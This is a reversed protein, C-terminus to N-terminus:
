YSFLVIPFEFFVWPIYAYTTGHTQFLTLTHTDMWTHPHLLSPSPGRPTNVCSFQPINISNDLVDPASIKVDLVLSGVSSLHYHPCLTHRSLSHSLHCCLYSCRSSTCVVTNVPCLRLTFPLPSYHKTAMEESLQAITWSPFFHFYTLCTITFFFSFKEYDCWVSSYKIDHLNLLM